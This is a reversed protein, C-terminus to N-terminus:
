KSFLSGTPRCRPIARSSLRSVLGEVADSEEPTISAHNILSWSLILSRSTQFRRECNEQSPDLSLLAEFEAEFRRQFDEDFATERSGQARTMLDEVPFSPLVRCSYYEVKLPVCRDPESSCSKLAAVTHIALMTQESQIENKARKSLGNKTFALGNELPVFGHVPKGDLPSRLVGFSAEPLRETRECSTELIFSMETELVHRRQNQVGMLRMASNFCNPGTFVIDEALLSSLREQFSPESAAAQLSSLFLLVSWFNRM